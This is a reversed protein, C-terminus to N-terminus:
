FKNYPPPKHLRWSIQIHNIYNAAISSYSRQEFDMEVQWLYKPIKENLLDQLIECFITDSLKKNEGEFSYLDITIQNQQRVRRCIIKSLKTIMANILKEYSKPNRDIQNEYLQLALNLKKIESEDIQLNM